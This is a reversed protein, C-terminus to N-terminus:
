NYAFSFTVPANVVGTEPNTKTAALGARLKLTKNNFAAPSPGTAPATAVLINTDSTLYTTPAADTSIMVGATGDQANFITPNGPLTNGSMIVSAKGSASPTGCNSLEVSFSRTSGNVPTAVTTFASKAFNGLNLSAPVSADCTVDVVNGSITIQGNSAAQTLSSAALLTAFLPTLIFLSKRM